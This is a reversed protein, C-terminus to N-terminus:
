LFMLFWFSMFDFVLSFRKVFMLMTYLKYLIDTWGDMWGNQSVIGGDTTQINNKTYKNMYIYVINAM